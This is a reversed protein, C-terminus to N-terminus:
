MRPLCTRGGIGGLQRDAKIALVVVGRAEVAELVDRLVVTKGKGAGDLLLAVNDASVFPPTLLWDLIEKTTARPLHRGTRGMQNRQGRLVASCRVVAQHLEALPPPAALRVGHESELWRRVEDPFLEIRRRADEPLRAKLFAFVSVAPLAGRRNTAAPLLRLAEDELTKRHRVEVRVRRLFDYHDLQQPSALLPEVKELWVKTQEANLFRLWEDFSQAGEIREFAEGLAAFEGRDEGVCLCIWSADRKFDAREFQHQFAAWVNRWLDGSSQLSEKAQIHIRHGDAFTVVVDDVHAPAEVRVGVILRSDPLEVAGLM